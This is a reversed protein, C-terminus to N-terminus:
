LSVGGVCYTDDGSDQCVTEWSEEDLSFTLSVKEIRDRAFSTVPSLASFLGAAALLPIMHKLRNM